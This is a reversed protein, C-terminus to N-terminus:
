HFKTLKFARDAAARRQDFQNILFALSSQSMDLLDLAIRHLVADSVNIKM